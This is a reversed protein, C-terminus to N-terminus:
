PKRTATSPGPSDDTGSREIDSTPGDDQTNEDGSPDGPLRLPTVVCSAAAGKVVQLSTAVPPRDAGARDMSIALVLTEGVGIRGKSIKFAIGKGDKGIGVRMRGGATGQEGRPERCTRDAPLYDVVATIGVAALKAELEDSDHFENIWVEVSGDAGKVVAYAPTGAGGSATLAVSATAAAGALAGSLALFRRSPGRRRVPTPRRTTIEEKLAGLLREEFITNM